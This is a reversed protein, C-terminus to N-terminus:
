HQQRDISDAGHAEALWHHVRLVPDVSVQLIILEVVDLLLQDVSNLHWQEFEPVLSSVCQELDLDGGIIDVDLKQGLYADLELYRKLRDDIVWGGDRQRRRRLLVLEDNFHGLSQNQVTLLAVRKLNIPLVEVLFVFKGEENLM